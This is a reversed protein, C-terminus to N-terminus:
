KFNRDFRGTIQHTLFCTDKDSLMLYYQLNNLQRIPLNTNSQEMWEYYIDRFIQIVCM